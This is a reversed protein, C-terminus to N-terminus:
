KVVLKQTGSESFLTYFGSKLMSIDIQAENSSIINSFVLRGSVDFIRLTGITKEGKINLQNDAPNPYVSFFTRREDNVSLYFGFDMQDVLIRANGPAFDGVSASVKVVAHNIIPDIPELQISVLGYSDLTDSGYWSSSSMLISDNYFFIEVAVGGNECYYKTYFNLAEPIVTIEFDTTAEAYLGLGNPIAHVQMAYDGEYSDSDRIVPDMLQTNGTEWNEPNYGWGYFEWSEFDGNPITQAAAFLPLFSFLLILKKM